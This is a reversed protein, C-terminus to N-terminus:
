WGSKALEASAKAAAKTRQMPTRMNDQEGNALKTTAAIFRSIAEVSTFRKHGVVVTDLKIGRAGRQFWRYITALNPRGPIHKHAARIPLLNEIGIDIM